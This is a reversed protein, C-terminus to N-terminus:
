AAKITGQGTTQTDALTFEAVLANLDGAEDRLLEADKVQTAVLSTNDRTMNGLAGLQQSLESLQNSSSDFGDASTAVHGSIDELSSIVETMANSTNDVQNVGDDIHNSATTILEKVETAAESTRGALARVESAVVAFGAGASGARAAEVGANLALLNTQFAIEDIVGIITEIQGASQQIASMAESASVLVTENARARKVASRAMANVDNAEKSSTGFKKTLAELATAVHEVEASQQQIRASLDGASADINASHSSVNEATALVELLTNAISDLASNFDKRLPDYTENFGSELQHTLDRRALYTLGSCLHDMVASLEKQEKDRQDSASQASKLSSQLAMLRKSMRGFEDRRKIATLSTDYNGSDILALATDLESMPRGILRHLFLVCLVLSILLAVLGIVADKMLATILDQRASSTDWIMIMAGRMKGKSSLIPHVLSFGDDTSFPESSAMVKEAQTEFFSLREADIVGVNAMVVGDSKIVRAFSFSPGAREIVYALRKEVTGSFGLKVPQEVRAATMQTLEYQLTRLSDMTQTQLRTGTLYGISIAVLLSFVTVLGVIRTNVSQLHRKLKQPLNSLM